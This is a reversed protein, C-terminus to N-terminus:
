ICVVPTGNGNCMVCVSQDKIVCVSQDDEFTCTDSEEEEDEEEREQVVSCSFLNM